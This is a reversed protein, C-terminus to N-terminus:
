WFAFPLRFACFSAGKREGGVRGSEDRGGRKKTTRKNRENYVTADARRHRRTCTVVIVVFVVTEDDDDDDDYDEVISSNTEHSLLSVIKILPILSNVLSHGTPKRSLLSLLFPFPFFFLTSISRICLYACLSISISRLNKFAPQPCSRLVFIHQTVHKRQWM